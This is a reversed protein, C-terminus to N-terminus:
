DEGMVDDDYMDEDDEDEDFRVIYALYEYEDVVEYLPYDGNGWTTRSGVGLHTGMYGVGFGTGECLQDYWYDHNYYPPDKKRKELDELTIDKHFSDKDWFCMQGSDVCLTTIKEVHPYLNVRYLFKPDSIIGLASVTQDEAPGRTIAFGYWEELAVKLITTRDELQYCPDSVVIHGSRASFPGIGLVSM